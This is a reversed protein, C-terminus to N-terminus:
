WYNYKDPSGLILERWTKKEVTEEVVGTEEKEIEDAM